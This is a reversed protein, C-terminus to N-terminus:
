LEGGMFYMRDMEFVANCDGWFDYDEGLTRETEDMCASYFDECCPTDYTKILNM